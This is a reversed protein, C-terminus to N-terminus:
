TEISLDRAALLGCAASIDTGRSIRISASIGSVVLSHKFYQMREKSSSCNQDNRVPHYSLLNVRIVSDRLITKLEQLHADTDNINDIMIYAISLRRRRKVPITKMLELIRKSPNLREAPVVKEREISFPSFLSLTLNCESRLLFQKVEPMIGVTSVTINKSSIALGWESTLIRCAKIVNELNDMPEGMGMFVVHTIDGSHPISIIQNVIEGATLNGRYGYQATACFSCGMRCGSQTSVCVTNRRRDPISVTEFVKGEESRFLYKVSGDTSISSSAPPFLGTVAIDFLKLKLNKPIEAIQRIDSIRKKYLGNSIQLSHRFTFELPGILEHIEDATLGCLCIKAM